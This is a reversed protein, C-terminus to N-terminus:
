CNGPLWSSIVQRNSCAEQQQQQSNPTSRQQQRHRKSPWCRSCPMRQQQWPLVAMGASSKLWVRLLLLLLLQARLLLQVAAELDAATCHRLLSSCCRTTRNGRSAAMRSSNLKSSHSHSSLMELVMSQLGQAKDQVLYSARNASRSSSSSSNNSHQV